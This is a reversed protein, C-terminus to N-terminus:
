EDRELRESLGHAARRPDPAAAIARVVAVRSAGATLIAGITHADVGGIAFFPVTAHAAAYSVLEPGVPACGPKTPTAYVPGVGIYDVGLARDIDACSHTSLGILMDAGVIERVEGVAMDQQGVHVGDAGAALAVAPRDNVILLTGSPECIAKATHAVRELQEDDLRKDRLQVVQTGGAIAEALVYELPGAAPESECILYLRAAQIQARRASAHEATISM